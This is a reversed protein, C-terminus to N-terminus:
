GRIAEEHFGSPRGKRFGLAAESEAAPIGGSTIASRVLAGVEELDGETIKRESFAVIEASEARRM